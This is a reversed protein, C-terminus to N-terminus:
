VREVCGTLQRELRRGEILNLIFVILGRNLSTHRLLLRFDLSDGVIGSRRGEVVGDNGHFLTTQQEITDHRGEISDRARVGVGDKLIDLGDLGWFEGRVLIEDEEVRFQKRSYSRDVFLASRELEIGLRQSQHLVGVVLKNM